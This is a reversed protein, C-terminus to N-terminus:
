PNQELEKEKQKTLHCHGVAIADLTNQDGEWSEAQRPYLACVGLRIVAKTDRGRLGRPRVAAVVSSPHYSYFALKAARAWGRIERYLTGLEPAPRLNEYGQTRECAVAVLGRGYQRRLGELGDMIVGIREHAPAKVGASLLWTNIPLDDEFLAVGCFRTGPDISFFRTV